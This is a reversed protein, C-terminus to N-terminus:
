CLQQIHHDLMEQAGKDKRNGKQRKEERHLGM